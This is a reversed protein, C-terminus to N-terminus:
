EGFLGYREVEALTLAVHAASNVMGDPMATWGTRDPM